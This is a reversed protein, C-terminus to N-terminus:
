STTTATAVTACVAFSEALLGATPQADYVVRWTTTNPAYNALVDTGAAGNFGGSIVRKGTPCVADLTLTTNANTSNTNRVVEVNALGPAGAVGAPGAAGQPGPDGAFGRPGRAGRLARRARASLDVTQISGNRIQSSGILKSATSRASASGAVAVAAAAFLGVVAIVIGRKM